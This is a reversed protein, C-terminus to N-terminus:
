RLFFSASARASSYRRRSLRDVGSAGIRQLDQCAERWIGCLHRVFATSVDVIGRSDNAESALAFKPWQRPTRAEPAMAQWRAAQSM